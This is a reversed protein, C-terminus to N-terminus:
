KAAPYKKGFGAWAVLLIYTLAVVANLRGFKLLDPALIFEIINMAAVAAIQMACSWRWRIGSLIWLAFLMEGAGIARTLLVAHEDGLIRAVIERHRPVGDMVKCWLGNVLWVTAFLLRLVPHGGITSKSRKEM